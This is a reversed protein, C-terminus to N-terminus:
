TFLKNDIELGIKYLLEPNSLEEFIKIKEKQLCIFLENFFSIIKEEMYKKNNIIIKFIFFIIRNSKLIKM